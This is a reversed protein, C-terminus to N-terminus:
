VAAIEEVISIFIYCFLTGISFFLKHFTSANEFALLFGSVITLYAGIYQPHKLWTINYPFASTWPIKKGFKIGYYVGNFGITNYVSFNLIQGSVFAAVLIYTLLSTFSPITGIYFWAIVLPLTQGTKGTVLCRHVFECPDTISTYNKMISLFSKPRNCVFSYSLKEMFNSFLNWFICDLLLDKYIIGM